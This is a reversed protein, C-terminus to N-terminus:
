QGALACAIAAQGLALGGDNPPVESHWYVQFSSRALERITGELLRVNQFSGGSLCVRELGDSARVATCAAAIARALTDHFRKSLVPVPEGARVAGALERIAQRLDIEEGGLDFGFAAGEGAAAAELEMAAEAEYRNELCVGLLASVADFLRGCSSTDVTQIRREIMQEVTRLRREDVTELAAADGPGLGADRLYALACRWPERAGADGGALPVYRLHYRREFSTYDCVLVEGGWIAHDSGYGTGDFAVGIVRGDLRHEAMCSAAHAHHHQVGIRPLEMERAARTSLYGPHLDHAVAEPKVRFFRRMHELTERFFLLTEYNELDGIHQSLIAYHGTTLCFTNKLEGGAAAMDPVARGLDIPAPAFGRSRRLVMPAGRFIRVVSDDVATRIPRNHTLFRDALGGLRALDEERSVIPEESLNGSTMVLAAFDADAFLLHHLPTYPLMIGLNPNRPAVGALEGAPKKRLLVIPRRAGTLLVREAESVECLRQAEELNRVMVAFPKDGRRKRERLRQVAEANSADCALHYGGLGKIAVVDGLRLRARVQDLPESIRPGCAPCANPQAHFRRDAPDRYEAECAECMAFEAMTTAARDYPVDRIITYRPGCNTCNTFPYQFRRNRPDTFDRRCDDCTAIDPPVLAFDGKPPASRLIEFGTTNQPALDCLEIAAIQALPPAGSRLEGLFQELAEGEAEIEVGAETNRVFGSIDLRNALNRVFPRFGVGQVTGRIKIQQRKPSGM